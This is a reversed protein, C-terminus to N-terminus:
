NDEGKNYKKIKANIESELIKFLWMPFYKDWGLVYLNAAFSQLNHYIFAFALVAFVFAGTGLLQDFIWGVVVILFIIGDRIVADIGINSQYKDNKKAVRVGVLYDLFVIIALASAIYVHMLIFGKAQFVADFFAGIVGTISGLMLSKNAVMKQFVDNVNSFM